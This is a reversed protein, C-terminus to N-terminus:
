FGEVATLSKQSKEPLFVLTPQQKQRWPIKGVWRDFEDGAARIQLHIRLQQPMPSAWDVTYM